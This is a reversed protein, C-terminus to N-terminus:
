RATGPFAKGEVREERSAGCLINKDGGEEATKKNAFSEVGRGKELFREPSRSSKELFIEEV